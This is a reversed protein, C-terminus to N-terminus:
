RSINFFLYMSILVVLISIVLCIYGAVKAHREYKAKLKPIKKSKQYEEESIGSLLNYRKQCILLYSSFILIAAVIINIGLIALLEYETNDFYVALLIPFISFPLITLLYQKKSM